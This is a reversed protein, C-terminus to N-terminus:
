DTRTFSIELIVEDIVESKKRFGLLDSGANSGSCVANKRKEHIM